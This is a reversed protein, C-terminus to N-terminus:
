KGPAVTIHYTIDLKFGGAFEAAFHLSHQGVSLPALMLYYGDDVSNSVTGAPADVGFFQLVNNEPLPGFQYLPSQHRYAELHQVPQGDIEAALFIVGDTQAKATARLEAETTGFGEVTSAETNAVPFFLAKGAPITVNRVVTGSANIVGGLFWVNGSQGQAVLAGTEDFLPNVPVPISFAWKWWEAGWEGYTKGFAHSQPPLIGLGPNPNGQAHAVTPLGVGALATGLLMVAFFRFSGASTATRM